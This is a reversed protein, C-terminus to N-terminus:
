VKDFVPEMDREKEEERDKESDSEGVIDEVVVKVPDFDKVKVPEL